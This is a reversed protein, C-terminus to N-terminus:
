ISCNAKSPLTHCSDAKSKCCSLPSVMLKYNNKNIKVPFYVIIYNKRHSVQGLYDGVVKLSLIKTVQQKIEGNLNLILKQGETQGLAILKVGVNVLNNLWNHLYGLM